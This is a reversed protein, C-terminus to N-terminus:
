NMQKAEIMSARRELIAFEDRGIKQKLDNKIVELDLKIVGLNDKIDEFQKDHQELKEKVGTIQETNDAVQEALTQIASKLDEAM